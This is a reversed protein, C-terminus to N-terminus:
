KGLRSSITGGRFFYHCWLKRLLFRRVKRHWKALSSTEASSAPRAMLAENVLCSFNGLHQLARMGAPNWDPHWREGRIMQRAEKLIESTFEPELLNRVVLYGNASFFDKDKESVDM